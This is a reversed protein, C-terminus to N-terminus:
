VGYLWALEDTAAIKLLAALSLSDTIEGNLAMAIAERLPLKIVEIDETDDLAQQGQSIETAIYIYAQEDTVSNSTHMTLLQQWNGAILGTEEELERKAAALPDEAFPGGGEPIEYTVADCAYRSQKVLWTNGASDVPVIGLAIGKFHVLGYIGETGNPRLVQEHSVRIWPNEYVVQQTQRVWGGVKQVPQTDIHESLFDVPMTSADNAM